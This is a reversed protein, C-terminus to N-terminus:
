QTKVLKIKKVSRNNRKVDCIYVGPQLDTTDLIVNNEFSQQKLTVGQMSYIVVQSYGAENIQISLYDAAPNPFIQIDSIEEQTGTIVPNPLPPLEEATYVLFNIDSFYNSNSIHNGRISLLYGNERVDSERPSLIVKGVKINNGTSESVSDYTVFSVAEEPLESFLELAPFTGDIEYFVKVIKEVDMPAAVRNYEDLQNDFMIFDEPTDGSLIVQFDIRVHQNYHWTEGEQSWQKVVVAFNYEGPSHFDSVNMDWNLLGTLYNLTLGSPMVFGGVPTGRDRFPTVLEYTLQIDDTSSAGLSLNFDHLSFGTAVPPAIFKPTACFDTDILTETYFTTLFSDSMNLVGGNRAQEAYSILYHGTAAYTHNITFSAMGVNPGLDPRAINDVAPILMNSGDGFDLTGDEGFKM